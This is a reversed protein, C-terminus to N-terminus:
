VAQNESCSHLQLEWSRLYMRASFLHEWQGVAEQNMQQQSSPLNSFLSERTTLPFPLPSHKPGDSHLYIRQKWHWCKCESWKVDWDTSRSRQFKRANIHGHLNGVIEAMKVATSPLDSLILMGWECALWPWSAGDNRLRTFSSFLYLPASSLPFEPTKKVSSASTRCGREGAWDKHKTETAGKCM